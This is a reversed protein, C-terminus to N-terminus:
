NRLKNLVDLLQAPVPESLMDSGLQRLRVAQHRLAEVRRAESPNQRLFDTVVRERDAPLRGEIFDQLEASTVKKVREVVQRRM